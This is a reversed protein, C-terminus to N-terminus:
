LGGGGKFQIDDNRGRQKDKFNNFTYSFNLMITPGPVGIDYRNDFKESSASFTYSYCNLNQGSLSVNTKGKFLPQSIAANLMYFGSVDGMADKGPARYYFTTQFRTGSKFNFSNVLRGDWTNVEQVKELQPVETTLKYHYINANANSKETTGIGLSLNGNLGQLMEKKLIVNIIGAQGDAEYKASPNTIVEIQRITNSPIQKLADSGKLISPKGDILVKFDSSGRLTLNGQGDVQVSPTNELAQIASGGRSLIDKDVNVIKKDIKYEVQTRSGTVLVESIEAMEPLLSIDGLEVKGSNKGIIVPSIIKKEFGIFRLEVFYTGSDIGSISFSGDKLSITGAVLSSDAAKYVAVSVYEMSAKSSSESIKGVLKSGAIVNIGPSASIEPSALFLLIGAILSRGTTKLLKMTKM